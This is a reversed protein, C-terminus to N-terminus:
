NRGKDNVTQIIRIASSELNSDKVVEDQNLEKSLQYANIFSQEFYITFIEIM